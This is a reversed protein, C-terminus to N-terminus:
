SRKRMTFGVFEGDEEALTCFEFEILDHKELELDRVVQFPLEVTNGKDLRAVFKEQVFLLKDTAM